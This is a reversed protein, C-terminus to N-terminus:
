PRVILAQFLYEVEVGQTGQKDTSVRFYAIFKGRHPSGATTDIDPSPIKRHAALISARCGALKALRAVQSLPLHLRVM